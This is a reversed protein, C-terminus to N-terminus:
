LRYETQLLYLCLSKVAPLTIEADDEAYWMAGHLLADECHSMPFPLYVFSLLYCTDGQNHQAAAYSAPLCDPM